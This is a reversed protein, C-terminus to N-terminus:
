SRGGNPQERLREGRPQSWGRAPSRLAFLVAIETGIAVPMVDVLLCAALGPSHDWLNKIYAVIACDFAIVGVLIMLGAVSFRLGGQAGRMSGDM